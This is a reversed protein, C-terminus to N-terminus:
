FSSAGGRWPPLPLSVAGQDAAPADRAADARAAGLRARRPPRPLPGLLARRPRFRVDRGGAGPVGRRPAAQGARLPAGRARGASVKGRTAHVTRVPVGGDVERLVASVMEGGQNAEVILADARWRRYAAVARAAWAMPKAGRLSADALVYGFGAEDRGAVVIGCADARPGSGAPPDVAVVVRQLDPAAAVRAAEIRGRTWLADPRDDILEGELEQRGLRTGAYRGVVARLFTPALHKANDETRSRSVAVAGDALLERLLPIARPTTTVVERPRAGLRLGFQLNDWTERPHRWKGLEDAWAAAFQPGRLSDPDESSFCQAVAGNRWQLRRLSPSWTPRDSRDEHVALIGSPGEVMVDRVAALTEGVLAIRGAGPEMFGPEGIAAGRVWEAGTRTKGAGRGGLVLWVLWPERLVWDEPPRQHPHCRVPWHRLLNEYETGTLKLADLAADLAPKSASASCTDTFSTGFSPLRVHRLSTARRTM